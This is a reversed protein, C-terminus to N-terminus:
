LEIEEDSAALIRIFDAETTEKMPMLNLLAIRLTNATSRELIDVANGEDIVTQLAPLGAPVKLPM